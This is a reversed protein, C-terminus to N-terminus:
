EDQMVVKRLVPSVRMVKYYEQAQQEPTRARAVKTALHAAARGVAGSVPANALKMVRALPRTYKQAKLVANAGHKYALAGASNARGELGKAALVGGVYAPAALAPGGVKYGAAAAAAGVGHNFIGRPGGKKSTNNIATDAGEMASIAAAENSSEEKLAKGLGPEHHEASAHMADSIDHHRGQRDLADESEKM